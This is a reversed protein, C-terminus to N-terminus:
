KGVMWYLTTITAVGTDQVAVTFSTANTASLSVVQTLAGGAVLPTLIISTPTTGLGHAILTNDIVTNTSGFRVPGSFAVNELNLTGGISISGTVTIEGLATIDDGAAIDEGASIAGTATINDVATIDDGAAIDEGASIAGTATINDVATIDDGATIDTGASVIGTATINNGAQVDSTVSIDGTVTINGTVPFGAAWTVTTGSQVDLTSGSRMEWECNSNAVWKAGGQSQFCRVNQAFTPWALLGTILLSIVVIILNRTRDKM